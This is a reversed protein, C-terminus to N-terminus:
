NARTFKDRALNSEKELIPVIINRITGPEVTSEIIVLTGAKLVKAVGSTAELLYTLDPKRSQSIPTPVCIVIIDSNNLGEVQNHASLLNNVVVNRVRVSEIDEIYSVCAKIQKVKEENTDFGCVLYGSEAAFVATPLGVYGLGVIGVKNM